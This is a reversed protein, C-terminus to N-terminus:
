RLHNPPPMNGKAIIAQCAKVCLEKEDEEDPVDDCLDDCCDQDWMYLENGLRMCVEYCGHSIKEWYGCQIPKPCPFPPYQPQNGYIPPPPQFYVDPPYPKCPVHSHCWQKSVSCAHDAPWGQSVGREYWCWFCLGPPHIPCPKPYGRLGLPDLIGISKNGTYGYLNVDGGWFGIPDQSMWRGQDVRLVRRRVDLREAEDRWYGMQGGFRLSNVTAGSVAVEEGFAKYLYDDTVNDNISAFIRTNSQQDFGYFSSVGGRRESALM